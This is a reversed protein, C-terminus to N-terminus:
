LPFGMGPLVTKIDNKYQSSSSYRGATPSPAQTTAPPPITEGSGTIIFVSKLIRVKDYHMQKMWTGKALFTFNRNCMCRSHRSRKGLWRPNAIRCEDRCTRSARTTICTPDSVPPKRQLRPRPFRERCEPAHSVWLKVYRILPVHGTSNLKLLIFICKYNIGRRLM